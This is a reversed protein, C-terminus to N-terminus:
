FRLIFVPKFLTNDQIILEVCYGKAGEFVKQYEGELLLLKFVFMCDQTYAHSKSPYESFYFGFGRKRRNPDLNNEIISQANQSPTGHFAFIETFNANRSELDLRKAEYAQSVARNVVISVSRIAKGKNSQFYINSHTSTDRSDEGRYLSLAKRVMECFPNKINRLDFTQLDIRHEFKDPLNDFARQEPTREPTSNYRGRTNLHKPTDYLMMNRDRINTNDSKHRRNSYPNRITFNPDMSWSSSTAVPPEPQWNSSTTPREDLVTDSTESDSTYDDSSITLNEWALFEADITTKISEKLAKADTKHGVDDIDATFYRNLSLSNAM